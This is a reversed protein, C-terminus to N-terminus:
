PTEARNGHGCSGAGPRQEPVFQRAIDDRHALVHLSELDALPHHRGIRSGAALAEIAAAALLVQAVIQQEVVAGVGLVDANRRPDDSRLM